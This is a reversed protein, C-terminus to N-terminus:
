PAQPDVGLARLRQRLQHKAATLRDEYAAVSIGLRRVIENPEMGQIYRMVIIARLAPSLLAIQAKLHGMSQQFSTHTEPGAIRGPDDEVPSRLMRDKAEIKHRRLYMLAFRTAVQWLYARPNDITRINVSCLRTYADQAVDEALATSGLIDRLHRTLSEGHQRFLEAVLEDDQRDIVHRAPRM